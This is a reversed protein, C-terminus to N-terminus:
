MRGAVINERVRLLFLLFLLDCISLELVMLHLPIIELNTETIKIMSLFMSLNHCHPMELLLVSVDRTSPLPAELELPLGTCSGGLYDCSYVFLM